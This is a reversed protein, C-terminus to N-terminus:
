EHHVILVSRFTKQTNWSLSTNTDFHIKVMFTQEFWSKRLKKKVNIYTHQRM